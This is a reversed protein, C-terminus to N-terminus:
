RGGPGASDASGQREETDSAAGERGGEGLPAPQGSPVRPAPPALRPWAVVAGVVAVVAGARAVNGWRLRCLLDREMGSM